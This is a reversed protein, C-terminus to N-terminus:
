ANLVNEGDKSILVKAVGPTQDGTVSRYNTGDYMLIHNNGMNLQVHGNNTIIRKVGKSIVQAM